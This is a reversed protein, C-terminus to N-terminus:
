EPLSEGQDTGRLEFVRVEKEKGKVKVVDKEIFQCHGIKRSEICSSLYDKTFETVLIKVHYNRTLKEVRAALNVHDGIITYDMKKGSAGINGIVVEGTNIGIGCDLIEKGEKKWM